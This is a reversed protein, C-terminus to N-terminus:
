AENVIEEKGMELDPGGGGSIESRRIGGGDGEGQLREWDDGWSLKSKILSPRRHGLPSGMGAIMGSNDNYGLESGIRASGGSGRHKRRRFYLMISYFLEKCAARSTVIYIVSNWFGM